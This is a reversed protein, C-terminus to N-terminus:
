EQKKLWAFWEDFPVAHTRDGPPYCGNPAEPPEVGTATAFIAGWGDCGPRCDGCCEASAAEHMKRAVETPSHLADM